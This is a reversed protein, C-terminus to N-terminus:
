LMNIFLMFAIAVFLQSDIRDLVGGHGPILNSFDKIDHNRKIASFFLDGLHSVVTLILIIGMLKFINISGIFTVYYVCMMFTGMFSGTIFGELSKKPSIATIKHKGILMGGIYAFTDTIIPILIMFLFYKLGMSRILIMYNLGLGVLFIFGFLKFADGTTYKKKEQYFIVPIFIMLMMLSLLKYDLGFAITNSDFNSYILSILAMFGLFRVVLPYKYLSTIEKYAFISIVGVCLAFPKGGLILFPVLVLILVVASIIRKKM